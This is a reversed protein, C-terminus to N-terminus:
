LRGLLFNILNQEVKAEEAAANRAEIEAFNIFNPRTYNRV